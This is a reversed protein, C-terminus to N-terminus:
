GQSGGRSEPVASELAPRKGQDSLVRTIFRQGEGIREVEVAISEVAQDIQTFRDIVDKPIATVAAASRRWIRRAYAISIPFIAVFMFIGGLVFVAEPPGHHEEPPREVIAGPIGATAAVQADAGAIQKDMADIRGDLVTMRKELGAKDASSLNEETSSLRNSIDRREDQLKEMQDGLVERQKVAAQYIASPSSTLPKGDVYVQPRVTVPAGPTAPAQPVQVVVAQLVM